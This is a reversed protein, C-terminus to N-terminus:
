EETQESDLESDLAEFLNFLVKREINGLIQVMVVVKDEDTECENIVRLLLDGQQSRQEFSSNIIFFAKKILHRNKESCEMFTENSMKMGQDLQFYPIRSDQWIRYLTYAKEKEDQLLANNCIGDTWLRQYFEQASTNEALLNEIIGAILVDCKKQLRKSEEATFSNEIEEEESSVVEDANELFYQFAATPNEEKQIRAYLLAAIDLKDGKIRGLFSGIWEEFSEGVTCECLKNEADM